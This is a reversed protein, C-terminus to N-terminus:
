YKHQRDCSNDWYRLDKENKTKNYWTLASGKLFSPALTLRRKDSIGNADGAHNYRELWERPDQDGGKFTPLDVFKAERSGGFGVNKFVTQLGKMMQFFNREDNDKANNADFPDEDDSESESDESNSSSSPSSSDYYSPSRRSKPKRNRRDKSRKNKHTNHSHDTKPRSSRSPRIDKQDSVTDEEDSSKAYSLKSPKSPKGTGGHFSRASNDFSLTRKEPDKGSPTTKAIITEDLPYSTQAHLDEKASESTVSDRRTVQPKTM